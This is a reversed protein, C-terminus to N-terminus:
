ISTRRKHGCLPFSLSSRIQLPRLRFITLMHKMDKLRGFRVQQEMKVVIISITTLLALKTEVLEVEQILAMLRQLITPAFPMFGEASFEFPDLVNHLQRGATVRVVQDNSVDDKDLLHQYIQYVLARDLGEKVPLWQGLVIAIRRRLINCGPKQTQVEPALTTKLFTGFDFRTDLVSAALGIAAYTSDKRLIDDSREMVLFILVYLMSQVM